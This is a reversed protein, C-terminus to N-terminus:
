ATTPQEPKFGILDAAKETEVVALVKQKPVFLKMTRGNLRKPYYELELFWGDAMSFKTVGLVYFPALSQEPHSQVQQMWDTLAASRVWASEIVVVAKEPKRSKETM